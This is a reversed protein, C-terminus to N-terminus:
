DSRIAEIEAATAYLLKQTVGFNPWYPADNLETIFIFNGGDGELYPYPILASGAVVRMGLIIVTEDISIDVSMMGGLDRFRLTYRVDDLQISLSQNPIAELPVVQSM